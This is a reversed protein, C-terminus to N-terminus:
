PLNTQKAVSLALANPGVCSRSVIILINSFFHYPMRRMRRM